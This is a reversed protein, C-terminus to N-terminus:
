QRILKRNLYAAAPKEYLRNVALSGVLIVALSLAMLMPWPMEMGVRETVEGLIRIGLQHVMYFSFSINGLHVLMKNQLAKTLIGGGIQSNVVYTLIILCSPAWWYSACTLKEPVAPYLLICLVLVTVPILEAVSKVSVPVRRLRKMIRSGGDLLSKYLNYLLMGIAFDMLRFVPSIYLLPHSLNEPIAALMIFYLLFAVGAMAATKKNGARNFFRSLPPFVMYFFLLDSLCWSVANFSFYISKLPIWSQILAANICFVAGNKIGFTGAAVLIAAAALLCLLHLPYIRTLRKKFYNGYSFEKREVKEAYGASMVFGSLILFFSVGCSGGAEFLGKGNVPFHHLFIMLAFIFRWSQLSKIM